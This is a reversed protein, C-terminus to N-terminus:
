RQRVENRRQLWSRLFILFGFFGALITFLATIGFLAFELWEATKASSHAFLAAVFAGFAVLQCFLVRDKSSRRLAILLILLGGIFFGWSRVPNLIVIETM